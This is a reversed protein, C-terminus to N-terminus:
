VLRPCKFSVHCTIEAVKLYQMNWDRMYSVRKMDWTVPPRVQANCAFVVRANLVPASTPLEADEGVEEAVEDVFGDSFHTSEIGKTDAQGTIYVM